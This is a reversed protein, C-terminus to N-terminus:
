PCSVALWSARLPERGRTDGTCVPQPASARDLRSESRGLSSAPRDYRGSASTTPAVRTAARWVRTLARSAARVQPLLELQSCVNSGTPDGLATRSRGIGVRDSANDPQAARSSPTRCTGRHSRPRHDRPGARGPSAQERGSSAAPDTRAWTGPAPASAAHPTRTPLERDLPVRRIGSQRRSISPPRHRPIGNLFRCRSRANEDVVLHDPTRDTDVLAERHEFVPRHLQVLAM